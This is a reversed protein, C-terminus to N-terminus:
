VTSIDNDADDKTMITKWPGRMKLSGLRDNVFWISNYMEFSFFLVRRKKIRQRCFACQANGRM